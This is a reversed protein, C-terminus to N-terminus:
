AVGTVYSVYALRRSDPAWSPVNITGQGGIFSVLDRAPSSPLDILRLVVPKDAPHGVTGPEYSLYALRRGDPSPHAFWNVRDDMTLQRISSDSLNYRFLQAHGDRISAMESNFYISRGDPSFEPGDAPSCGDGVLKEAGTELDLLWLARRGWEDGDQMETGVYALTRGDPSVGHLFHRFRREMEKPSTIRQPTGGEWPLRYLHGDNASVYHWKGDPSIVHDNNLEPLGPGAIEVLRDPSEVDVRFLVGDANVVLYRGEPHWNPAEILRERATLLLTSTGTEVDVIRLEAYQGPQFKRAWRIPTQTAQACGIPDNM